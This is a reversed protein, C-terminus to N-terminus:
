QILDEEEDPFMMIKVVADPLECQRHGCRSCYTAINTVKPEVIDKCKCCAFRHSDVIDFCWDRKVIYQKM